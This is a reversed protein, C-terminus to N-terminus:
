ERTTVKGGRHFIGAQVGRQTAVADLLLEQTVAAALPFLAEGRSPVRLLVHRPDPLDFPTDTIVVVASGLGATERAMATLLPYTAGSPVFFVACHGPGILEYPGHRFAGGTLAACVSHTGEMFTLAAQKAAVLAPGRSIFQIAGGRLLEAARTVAARDVELMVGALVTLDDLARLVEHEGALAAAMLHLVALTNVYSKTSIASEAGAHLPLALAAARAITSELNNTVALVGHPPAIRELLLRTEVSEGSQSILVALGPLPRPYHLLEGADLTTADVGRQALAALVMEPTFESTGMGTFIVRGAERARAAWELLLRMGDGRYCAVLARLADPHEEIEQQFATM